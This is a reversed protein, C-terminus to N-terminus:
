VRISSFGEHISEKELIVMSRWIEMGMLIDSGAVLRVSRRRFAVAKTLSIGSIHRIAVSNM